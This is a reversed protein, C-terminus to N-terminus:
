FPYSKNHVEIDCLPDKSNYFSFIRVKEGSDIFPPTLAFIAILLLLINQM